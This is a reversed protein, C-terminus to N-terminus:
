MSSQDIEPRVYTCVGKGSIADNSGNATRWARLRPMFDPSRYDERAEGTGSRRERLRIANDYCIEM